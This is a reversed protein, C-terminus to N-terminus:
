SAKQEGRKRWQRLMRIAYAETDVESFRGRSGWAYGAKNRRNSQWIHRLEHAALYVLLETRDKIWIKKGKHQGYQYPVLLFSKRTKGLRLVVFKKSNGHYHSGGIYAMGAYSYQSNKVMVDIGKVGPPMTFRVVERVLDDPISTTNVVKTRQMEWYVVDRNPHKRLVLWNEQETSPSEM